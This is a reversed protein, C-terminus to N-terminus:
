ALVQQGMGRECRVRHHKAQQEVDSKVTNAYTWGCSECVIAWRFSPAAM